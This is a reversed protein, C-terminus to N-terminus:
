HAIACVNLSRGATLAVSERRLNWIRHFPGNSDLDYFRKWPVTYAENRGEDTEWSLGVFVETYARYM